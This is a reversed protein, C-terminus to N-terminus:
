APTRLYVLVSHRQKKDKRNHIADFGHAKMEEARTAAEVVDIFLTRPPSELEVLIDAEHALLGGSPLVITFNQHTKVTGTVKEHQIVFSESKVDGQKTELKSGLRGFELFLLDFITRRAIGAPATADLEALDVM